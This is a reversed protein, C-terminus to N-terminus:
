YNICWCGLYGLCFIYYLSVYFYLTNEDSSQRIASLGSLLHEVDKIILSICILIVRQSGIKCVYSHSLDFCLYYCMGTLSHLMPLVRRDSTLTSGQGAM